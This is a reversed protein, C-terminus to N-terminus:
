YGAYQRMQIPSAEVWRATVFCGVTAISGGANVFVTCPGELWEPYEPEYVLNIARHSIGTADGFNATTTARALEMDVVPAAASAGSKPTTTLDATVASGVRCMSGKGFKPNMNSPNEDTFTGTGTWLGLSDVGILADVEHSDATEIGPQVSLSFYIPRLVVGAPVAIVLLPQAVLIVDTSGGGVIGTSLAGVLAARGFGDAIMQDLYDLNM